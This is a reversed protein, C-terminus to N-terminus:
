GLNGNPIFIVKVQGPPQASHVDKIGKQCKASVPCNYRVIIWDAKDTMPDHPIYTIYDLADLEELTQPPRGKDSTYKNIGDRMM